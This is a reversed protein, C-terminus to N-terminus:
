DDPAEDDEWTDGLEDLKAEVFEAAWEDRDFEEEAETDEERAEQEEDKFEGEDVRRMLDEYAEERAMDARSNGPLDSDFCGPPLNWGSRPEYQNM